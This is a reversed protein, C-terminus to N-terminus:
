AAAVPIWSNMQRAVLQSVVTTLSLLLCVEQCVLKRVQTTLFRKCVESTCLSATQLFMMLDDLQQM